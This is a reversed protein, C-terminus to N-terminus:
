ISCGAKTKRSTVIPLVSGLSAVVRNQEAERRSLGKHVPYKQKKLTCKPVLSCCDATPVQAGATPM